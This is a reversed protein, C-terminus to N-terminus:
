KSRQKQRARNEEKEGNREEGGEDRERVKGQFNGGPVPTCSGKPLSTWTRECLSAQKGPSRNQRSAWGSPHVAGQPFFRSKEGPGAQGTHAKGGRLGVRGSNM